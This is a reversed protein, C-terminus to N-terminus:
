DLSPRWELIINNAVVALVDRERHSVRELAGFSRSVRNDNAVRFLFRVNFELEGGISIGLFDYGGVPRLLAQLALAAIRGPGKGVCLDLEILSVDRRGLRM